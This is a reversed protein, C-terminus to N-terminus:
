SRSWASVRTAAGTWLRRADLEALHAILLTTTEREDAALQTVRTLLEQDTLQTLSLTTTDMGNMGEMMEHAPQHASITQASTENM